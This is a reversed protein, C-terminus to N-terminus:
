KEGKKIREVYKGAIYVITKRPIFKSLIAAFKNILGDTVSSKKGLARLATEVVKEPTREFLDSENESVRKIESKTKGPNLSLVDINHKRLEFNLTEGLVSNFSKTASYVSAYPSITYSLISGLFIIAGRKREIMPKVFHHTLITPAICNLKILKSDYDISTKFFEGDSGIGANNILIGIEKDSTAEIMPELFNDDALDVNLYKALVNYRSSIDSCIFELIEKRRAILYVNLGLEALKYAFAKGIGSSAGTILSWEGYKSNLSYM